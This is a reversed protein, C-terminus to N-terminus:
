VSKADRADRRARRWGIGVTAGAAGGFAVFADVTEGLLLQIGVVGGFVILFGVHL